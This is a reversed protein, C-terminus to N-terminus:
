PIRASPRSIRKPAVWASAPMSRATASCWRTQTTPGLPQPLDVRSLRNAPSSVGVAPVIAPAPRSRQASIGWRSRSSGHRLASSLLQMASSSAPVGRSRGPGLRQRQELPEPQLPECLLPRRSEGAPHALPDGEQARQEGALRHQQQVLREAAQVRDGALLQLAPQALRQVGLRARHQQDGVVHVLRQPQAPAHDHERCPRPTDHELHLRRAAGRRVAPPAARILRKPQTSTSASNRSAQSACTRSRSM